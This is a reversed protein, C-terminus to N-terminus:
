RCSGLVMALPSTSARQTMPEFRWVLDLLNERSLFVWSFDGDAMPINTELTGETTFGASLRLYSRIWM